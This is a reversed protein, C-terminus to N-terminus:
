RQVKFALTLDLAHNKYQALRDDLVYYDKREIEQSWNYCFYIPLCNITGLEPYIRSPCTVM